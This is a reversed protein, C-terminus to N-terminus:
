SASGSGICIIWKGTRARIICQNRWGYREEGMIM